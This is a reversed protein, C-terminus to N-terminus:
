SACTASHHTRARAAMWYAFGGVRAKSLSGISMSGGTQVISLSPMASCRRLFSIDAVTADDILPVGLETVIRSVEKRAAKPMVEVTPNQFTPTLYVLRAATATIRDRILSPRVGNALVPLPSIRAGVARFADLAGFYAPDEVLVTDGRQLFLGACLAIAQQAGNTVLIQEQTTHLGNNSYLAAISQRLV